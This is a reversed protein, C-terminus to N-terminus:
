WRETEERAAAVLREVAQRERERHAEVQERTLKPGSCVRALRELTWTKAEM